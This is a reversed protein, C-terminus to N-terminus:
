LKSDLHNLLAEELMEIKEKIESKRLLINGGFLGFVSSLIFESRLKGSNVLEVHLSDGKLRVNIIIKPLTRDSLSKSLIIFSSSNEEKVEVKFNGNELFSQIIDVAYM